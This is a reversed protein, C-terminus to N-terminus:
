RAAAAAHEGIGTVILWVVMIGFINLGFVTAIMRLSEPSMPYDPNSPEVVRDLYMQQRQADVRATDLRVSAEALIKTAFERQLSLQEYVELKGALGTSEDSIQSREQRIQAELAKIHAQLTGIQPSNPSSTTLATLQAKTQSLDTDLKAILETIIVSSRAPDIMMEKNRFNTLDLEASVLQQQDRAVEDTAVGVADQYIRENMRNVLNEGLDLLALAVAQADEPRFAQVQITTLGTSPTYVVSIMWQLYRHFQELSGGYFLSPYRAVFDAEPRGYFERLPLKQELDKVADLSTMYNQVAYDDDQSTSLGAMQLLSGLWSLGQPKSANRVVFQAVAVYRDTAFLGFYILAVFTPVFALIYIYRRGGGPAIRVIQPLRTPMQLLAPLLPTTAAPESARRRFPAAIPLKALRDFSRAFMTPKLPSETNHM